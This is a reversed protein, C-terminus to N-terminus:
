TNELVMTCQSTAEGRAALDSRNVTQCTAAVQMVGVLHNGSGRIGPIGGKKRGWRHDSGLQRVFTLERGDALSVNQRQKQTM